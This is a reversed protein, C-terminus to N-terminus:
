CNFGFIRAYRMSWEAWRNLFWWLRDDRTEVPPPDDEDHKCEM